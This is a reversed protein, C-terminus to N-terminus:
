CDLICVSFGDHDLIAPRDICGVELTVADGAAAEDVADAIISAVLVHQDCQVVVVVVVATDVAACDTLQHACTRHAPEVVSVDLPPEVTSSPIHRAILLVSFTATRYRRVSYTIKGFRSRM